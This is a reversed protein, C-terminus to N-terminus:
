RTSREANAGAPAIRAALAQQRRVAKGRKLSAIFEKRSLVLLCKNATVYVWGDRMEFEVM